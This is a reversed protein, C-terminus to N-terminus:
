KPFIVAQTIMEAQLLLRTASIASMKMWDQKIVRSVNQRSVDLKNELAKHM